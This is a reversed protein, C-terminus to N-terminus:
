MCDLYCDIAPATLLVCPGFHRFLEPRTLPIEILDRIQAIQKDLGGVASYADREVESEVGRPKQQSAGMLAAFDNYKMCHSTSVEGGQAEPKDDVITVLTDWSITWLVASPKLSLEQLSQTIDSDDASDDALASVRAIQFRLTRGEYTVEVVQRATVYKLDVVYWDDVM